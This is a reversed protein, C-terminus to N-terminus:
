AMLRRMNRPPAVAPIAPKAPMVVGTAARSSADACFRISTMKRAPPTLWSSVHSGFGFVSVPPGNRAMGVLTGLTVLVYELWLPCAFSGHILRRHMGVSHGGCLTIACLVLFVLFADWSFTLPGFILTVATMSGIWISKVPAWRVVGEVPSTDVGAVIRESGRVLEM